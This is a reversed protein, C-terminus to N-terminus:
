GSRKASGCAQHTAWLLRAHLRVPVKRKLYLLRIDDSCAINSSDLSPIGWLLGRLLKHSLNLLYMSLIYSTFSASM